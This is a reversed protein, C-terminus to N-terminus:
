LGGNYFKEAIEIMNDAWLKEDNYLDLYSNVHDKMREIISEKDDVTSLMIDNKCKEFNFRRIQVTYYKDMMPILLLRYYEREYCTGALVQASYIDDSIKKQILIIIPSKITWKPNWKIIINDKLDSWEM